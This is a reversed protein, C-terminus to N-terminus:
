LDASPSVGLLDFAHKQLATPTDLVTTDLEAGFRVTNRTMTALDTLLTRFSHVPHGDETRKGAAKRQAGLSLTAKAVPSRRRVQASARDHDDFLLPALAQCMHWELHYALLCLFVHARVRGENWHYVPRIELDVTKCSRFAREVTSLSKYSFVTAQTDLQDKPVPTRLVCYM